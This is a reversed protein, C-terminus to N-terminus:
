RPHQGEENKEEKIEKEKAKVQAMIAREQLGKKYAKLGSM